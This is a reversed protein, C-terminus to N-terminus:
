FAWRHNEPLCSDCLLLGDVTAGNTLEAIPDEKEMDTTWGGCNSCKGCNMNNPDLVFQYCSEWEAFHTKDIKKRQPFKWSISREFHEFEDSAILEEEVEILYSTTFLLTKM